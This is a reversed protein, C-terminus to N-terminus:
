FTSEAPARDARGGANSFREFHETAKLKKSFRLQKVGSQLCRLRVLRGRESKLCKKPLASIFYQIDSKM